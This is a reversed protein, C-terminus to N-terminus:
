RQKLLGMGRATDSTGQPPIPQYRNDQTTKTHKNIDMYTDINKIKNHHTSTVKIKVFIYFFVLVLVRRGPPILLHIRRASCEDEINFGKDVMLTSYPEITDLFM